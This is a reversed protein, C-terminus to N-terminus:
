VRIFLSSSVGKRPQKRIVRNTVEVLPVRDLPVLAPVFSELSPFRAIASKEQSHRTNNLPQPRPPSFPSITAYAMGVECWRMRHLRLAKMTGVWDLQLCKFFDTFSTGRCGNFIRRHEYHLVNSSSPENPDGLSSWRLRGLATGSMAKLPVSLKLCYGQCRFTSM